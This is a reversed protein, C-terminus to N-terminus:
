IFLPALVLTVTSLLKILVHLSPGATDKFPDGVTDGVVAAKHADSGKGGYQGTEIYKKANDWAGGGNNMFLAMLIGAITGVMLLAAVSQPAVGEKTVFKLGFGLAAPVVVPLIGPLVMEKLAAKTVIDVCRAYDPKDKGEMIGPKERFQRRVEEIVSQAAKGVSRIALASFLFVLMAGISAGIFVPVHGLDVTTMIAKGAHRLYENVEDIYAQFLLFAALAASGVAYGKTLAKTTNGVADLRDTKERISEPQQSMEVIGGANDTIPGFTDMALIYAATSLMGMTAIATGYLGAATPSIGAKTMGGWGGLVHLMGLQGFKYALMLAVSIVVIPIATCEMGVSLGSIITTAPGTRCSDAIWKVPRYRYETYYQTIWVFAYSCLIGVVGALFFYIQGKLLLLVAIYFGIIGLITTVLYGRNLASMPDEWGSEESGKVKVSLVGVISAILGLARAFLPFMIAGLGFVPGNEGTIKYLAIGLIMAGINEAATSEFLDAGRGACDGVNDGVLDAIVAPNRPDDEPIGAEVKGVLDAGVDAAKTYIGGGLQAFLAVFSAGFGYGVIQLPVIDPNKLGDFIWFLLGVGLLSMAVVMIGSVAGGRLAVQLATNLNKTAASATRINSRISIYMGIFGAFGSCFAGFLFSIFTRIALQSGKEKFYFAFLIAALVVSLIAITKYQRKLFAEAGEKIANSIVQMAPTGTDKALVWKAMAFAVILGAVSILMTVAFVLQPTM